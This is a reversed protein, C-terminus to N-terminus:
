PQQTAPGNALSAKIASRLDDISFPKSIVPRHAHEAVIAPRGYGTAFFYPVGKGATVPVLRVGPAAVSQGVTQLRDTVDQTTNPNLLLIKLISRENM